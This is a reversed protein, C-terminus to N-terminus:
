ATSSDTILGQSALATLLSALAANGARSGTVTPKAVPATGYFGVATGDHDLAGGIQALGSLYLDAWRLGNALDGLDIADDTDPRFAPTAGALGLELYQAAATSLLIMKNNSGDLRLMFGAATNSGLILPPPDTQADGINVGNAPSSSYPIDYMMAIQRYGTDGQYLNTFDESNDVAV